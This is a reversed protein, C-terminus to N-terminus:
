DFARQKIIKSRKNHLIKAETGPLVVRSTRGRMGNNIVGYTHLTKLIIVHGIYMCLNM